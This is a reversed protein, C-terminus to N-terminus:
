SRGTSLLRRERAYQVASSRDRAGLKSYINRIHTNVTNISVYLERAIEPRTLNTPLYRLVRLESPSLAEPQSLRDRDVSPASAGKLLDVIDALLAGHATEHRPLADLLEAAEAMAFPFMLRDPEAVALAAEAAAAAANRGGLHLHAIGALLHTEVLTFAPAVPPTLDLVGGLADLATSPDQETLCIVARANYVAGMQGDYIAGIRGPEASFDTLTARAEDRMGLRAQTAALWGTIRPALAHVGTLLSQARAAATFAELASGHKGRGAHLMGTAVHLLVATAPDVQAEAVEWARRLWREGEDFEGMWLAMGGVAGLAPALIPQDDLGHREALAVAQRGRERATAVSVLRSPFGLHARCAVELYPRGITRALAAGEFLHREADALRGTWTEVIGLNLLAVGRLESGTVTPEGSEDSISADLLNVQEIVESFQGSRRAMALRLSAIAVALRRRRAPPARQVYSEALALQAAAEELRGQNLENAAHALALDPHDASAGEPFAQLVAGITGAQGDLVWRFSHDAVLRAADPWDGASLTHQVAEVVEGHDVFWRAARRHLDSVEDALTRRLELRLFDGLLQHYRFWTRQGDLSVVFANAEELELLMQESGSRGALVDALEGNVRDVLSTRLLMSQVERPQRELMEAMLYEGIARDTGSFEAVFRGPDPHGSLSIVALRLGAAWGETRQYLAAAGADSLSIESAALLERTERETFQLDGARIEAVDDALRLQHLRIPPDRRSSLVLRASSPLIALLQDLQALADPSRLEHLDDVILVIPEVRKALESRVADVVRDGELAATAAPQSKPDISRAPSRIADLVASWFRQADQQDRDVSVFAVRQVNTSRDAWARLLSTKGSGPPASIVTVRKTVSRDLLQLLDDRDLLGRALPIPQRLHKGRQTTTLSTMSAAAHDLGETLNRVTSLSSWSV